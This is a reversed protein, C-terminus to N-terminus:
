TFEKRSCTLNLTLVHFQTPQLGLGPRGVQFTVQPLWRKRALLSSLFSEELVPRCLMHGGQPPIRHKTMALSKLCIPRSNPLRVDADRCKM